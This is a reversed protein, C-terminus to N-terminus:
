KRYRIQEKNKGYKVQKLCEPYEIPHDCRLGLVRKRGGGAKNYGFFITETSRRYDFCFFDNSLQSPIGKGYPLQHTLAYKSFRLLPNHDELILFFAISLLQKYQSPFCQKLDATIGLKEGIASLLYAAGVYLRKTEVVPVPGRKLPHEPTALRKSPILEGTLPDLKDICIRRSRSQQKTKDWFNEPEYVYTIGNKKSKLYILPMYGEWEVNYNYINFFRSM